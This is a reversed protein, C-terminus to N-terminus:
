YIQVRKHKGKTAIEELNILYKKYNEQLRLQEPDVNVKAILDEIPFVKAAVIKEIAQIFARQFKNAFKFQKAASLIERAEKENSIIFEGRHFADMGSGGTDAKGKKLLSIATTVSVGDFEKLFSALQKYQENGLEMYCDIFDKAKWKETNSNMRAIDYLSLKEAIIYHVPHKIKQAVVFRHQGDIIEFKKGQEIVLIPVYKLLNTGRDIDALIKKIKHM